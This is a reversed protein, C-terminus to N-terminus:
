QNEAAIEECLYKEVPQVNKTITEFLNNLEANSFMCGNLIAENIVFSYYEIDNSIISKYPSLAYGVVGTGAFLDIVQHISPDDIVPTCIYDLMRSKSGLYQLTSIRDIM